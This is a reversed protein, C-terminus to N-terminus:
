PNNTILAQKFKDLFNVFNLKETSENAEYAEFKFAIQKNKQPNQNYILKVLLALINKNTKTLYESQIATM